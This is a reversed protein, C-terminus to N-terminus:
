IKLVRQLYSFEYSAMKRRRRISRSDGKYAKVVNLAIRRLTAFNQAQHGKRKRSADEGFAVDLSWHLQNEVSWHARIARNMFSANQKLSSIYYSIETTEKEKVSRTRKIAVISQCNKWNNTEEAFGLNTITRCTRTEIRGHNKEETKNESEITQHSFATQIQEYLSKQNNKVALIYDAKADVIKEAIDKQCGMADITIICGALDLVALLEPIATIENTKEETRIQGLLINQESAWAHVLHLMKKGHTDDRSGTLSKGDIHVFTNESGFISQVWQIFCREFETPNILAFVREFTDHSPIGNSLEFYKKLDDLKSRAWDAIDQWEDCEAIVAIIAIGIIDTLKHKTRGSVRPDSIEKFYDPLNM